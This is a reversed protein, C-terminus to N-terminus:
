WLIRDPSHKGREPSGAGLNVRHGTALGVVRHDGLPHHLVQVADPLHRLIHEGQVVPLLAQVAQVGPVAVPPVEWVLDISKVNKIAYVGPLIERIYLSSRYAKTSVVKPDYINKGCVTPSLFHSAEEFVNPIQVFKIVFISKVFVIKQYM